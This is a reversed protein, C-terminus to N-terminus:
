QLASNATAGVGATISQVASNATDKLNTVAGPESPSASGSSGSSTASSSGSSGSAKPDYQYTDSVKHEQTLKGPAPYTIQAPVRLGDPGDDAAAPIAPCAFLAGAVALALVAPRIRVLSM